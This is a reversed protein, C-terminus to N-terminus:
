WRVKVTQIIVCLMNLGVNSHTHNHAATLGILSHPHSINTPYHLQLIIAEMVQIHLGIPHDFTPRIPHPENVTLQHYAEFRSVFHSHLWRDM